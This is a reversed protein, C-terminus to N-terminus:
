DNWSEPILESKVAEENDLLDRYYSSIEVDGSNDVYLHGDRILELAKAAMKHNISYLAISCEDDCDEEDQELGDFVSLEKCNQKSNYNFTLEHLFAWFGKGSGYFLKVGYQVPINLFNCAIQEFLAKQNASHKVARQILEEEWDLASATAFGAICGVSSCNFAKTGTNLFDAEASDIPGIYDIDVGSVTEFNDLAGAKFDEEELDMIEEYIAGLFVQMNFHKAGELQLTSIVKNFNTINFDSREMVSLYRTNRRECDLWVDEYKSYDTANETESANEYAYIYTRLIEDITPKVLTVQENTQIKNEIITM